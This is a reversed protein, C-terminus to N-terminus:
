GSGVSWQQGLMSGCTFLVAALGEISAAGPLSICFGNDRFRVRSELKVNGPIPAGTNFEENSVPVCEVQLIRAGNFAGDFSNFCLGTAQNVIRYHNTALKDMYWRQMQTGDCDMQVIPAFDDGSQPQLCMGTYTNRIPHFASVAHASGASVATLTAAMAGIMLMGLIRSRVNMM